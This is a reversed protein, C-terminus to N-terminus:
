SGRDTSFSFPSLLLPVHYHLAGDAVTLQIEVVRRQRLPRTRQSSMHSAGRISLTGSV